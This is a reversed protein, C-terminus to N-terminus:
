GRSGEEAEPALEDELVFKKGSIITDIMTTRSVVITYVVMYLHVVLFAAYAWLLMHHLLHVMNLNNGFFGLGWTAITRWFPSYQAHAYLTFGSVISFLAGLYLLTYFVNALPSHGTYVPYKGRRLLFAGLDAFIHKWRRKTMPLMTSWRSFRNGVCGWYLRLLFAALLVYGALFHLFRTTGFTYIKSAETPESFSPNGIMYGTIGLMIISIAIIWHAICVPAQWVKMYIVRETTGPSERM